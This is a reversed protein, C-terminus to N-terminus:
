VRYCLDDLHLIITALNTHNEQETNEFNDRDEHPYNHLNATDQGHPATDRGLPQGTGGHCTVM